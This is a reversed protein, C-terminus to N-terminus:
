GAEKMHIVFYDISNSREDEGEDYTYFLDRLADIRGIRWKCDNGKLKYLESRRRGLEKRISKIEEVDGHEWVTKWKILTGAENIDFPELLVLVNGMLNIIKKYTDLNDHKEHCNCIEDILDVLDDRHIGTM